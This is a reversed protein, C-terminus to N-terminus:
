MERAVLITARAALSFRQGARRAPSRQVPVVEVLKLVPNIRNPRTPFDLESPRRQRLAVLVHEPKDSRALHVVPLGALCQTEGGGGEAHSQHPCPSSEAFREGM